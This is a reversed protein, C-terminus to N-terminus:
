FKPFIFSIFLPLFSIILELVFIKKLPWEGSLSIKEYLSLYYQKDEKDDPKTFDIKSMIHELTKLTAEKKRKIEYHLMLIVIIALCLFILFIEIYISFHSLNSIPVAAVSQSVADHFGSFTEGITKEPIQMHLSAPDLKGVMPIILVSGLSLSVLYICNLIFGGFEQTGGQERLSNMELPLSRITLLLYIFLIFVTGLILFIFFIELIGLSIVFTSLYFGLLSKLDFSSFLEFIRSLVSGNMFVIIWSLVFLGILSSRLYLNIRLGSRWKLIFGSFLQRFLRRYIAFEGPYKEFAPLFKNRTLNKFQQITCVYGGWLVSILFVFFTLQWFVANKNPEDTLYYLPLYYFIWYFSLLILSFKVADIIFRDFFLENVRDPVTGCEERNYDVFKYFIREPISQADLSLDEKELHPIISRIIHKSRDTM